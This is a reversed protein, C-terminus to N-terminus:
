RTRPQDRDIAARLSAVLTRAAKPPEKAAGIASVLASGVIVGDAIHAVRSAQDPTSIGFGVALPLDTARRARTVLSELSQPLQDRAGTVGVLSVLYLFGSSYGAVFRTRRDDSMPSVLFILDIGQSHLASRLPDSEEPLLDPVILGDVGAAAADEAFRTLGRQFIPNYYGMLVFPVTVGRSRLAAAQELCHLFTMGNALAQHSASQITAGDALPDSFPVGLEILDAGAEVLAPVLELASERQPYGMMVYPM